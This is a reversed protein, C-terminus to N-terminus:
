LNKVGEYATKLLVIFLYACKPFNKFGRGGLHKRLMHVTGITFMKSVEEGGGFQERLKHIVFLYIVLLPGPDVSHHSNRM